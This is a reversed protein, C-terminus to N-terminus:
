GKARSAEENIHEEIQGPVIWRIGSPQKEDVQAQHARVADRV